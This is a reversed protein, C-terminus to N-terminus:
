KIDIINQGITEMWEDQPCQGVSRCVVKEMRLDQPCQGCTKMWNNSVLKKMMSSVFRSKWRDLQNQSLYFPSLGDTEMWLDLPSM